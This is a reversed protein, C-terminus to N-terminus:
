PTGGFQVFFGTPGPLVIDGRDNIDAAVTSGGPPDITNYARHRLLYAHLGQADAYQGAIQGRNNIGFPATAAFGPIGPPGCGLPGPCRVDVARPPDITAFVGRRLRYGHTRGQADSYGGVIEGRDNIDFAGSRTAGPVDITTISRKSRLFGHIAGGADAYLGVVQGRNNIGHPQTVLAGPVDITTSEGDRDRAFGHGNGDADIYAGVVQGRDNVGFPFTQSAGSADFRTLRGRKDRLFGHFPPAGAGADSYTGVLEGRNNTALYTTFAAGAVDKLPILAGKRLLLNGSTTAALHASGASSSGTGPDLLGRLGLRSNSAWKEAAGAPAAVALALAALAAVAIVVLGHRRIGISLPSTMPVDECRRRVRIM